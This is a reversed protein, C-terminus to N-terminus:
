THKAHIAKIKTNIHVHVKYWMVKIVTFGVPPKRKKYNVFPIAFAKAPYFSGRSAPIEDEEVKDSHGLLGIASLIKM